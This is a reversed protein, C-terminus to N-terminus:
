RRGQILLGPSRMIDLIGVTLSIDIVWGVPLGSSAHVPLLGPYM